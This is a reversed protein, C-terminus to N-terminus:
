SKMDFPSRSLKKKKEREWLTNYLNNRMYFTKFTLFGLTQM